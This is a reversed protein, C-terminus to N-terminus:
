AVVEEVPLRTRGTLLEQMMGQKIARAKNLQVKLCDVVHDVSRLAQGIAIQEALPPLDCWPDTYFSPLLNPYASTATHEVLKRQAPGSQLLYRIYEGSVGTRPRLIKVFNSAALRNVDHVYYTKGLGNGSATIVVDDARCAAKKWEEQRLYRDIWGVLLGEASIDGARIIRVRVDSESTPQDSGWYGSSRQCLEALTRGRSWMETFGPFRTRGTLLEQMMGQKIAQKKTILRWLNTILTDIERLATSIRQQEAREKPLRIEFRKIRGLALKPQAGVTRITDIERQISESLLSYMLYDIDCSIATIRDANETLNAGDLEAPVRGVVGLTGAVSIFLDDRFIRYSRITPAVDEPVYIIKSLDVGGERMDTVRLYPHPTPVTTLSRGKPLRKGGRVNGLSDVYRVEWEDPLASDSM